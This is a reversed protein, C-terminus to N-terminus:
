DNENPNAKILKFWNDISPSDIPLNKGEVIVIIWAFEGADPREIEFEQSEIFGNANNRPFEGKKFPECTKFRANADRICVIGDIIKIERSPNSPVLRVKFSTHNSKFADVQKMEYVMQDSSEASNALHDTIWQWMNLRASRAASNFDNPDVRPYIRESHRAVKCNLLIEDLPFAIRPPPTLAVIEGQMAVISKQTEGAEKRLSDAEYQITSAKTKLDSIAGIQSWRGIAFGGCLALVALTVALFIAIKRWRNVPKLDLSARLDKPEIIENALYNWPTHVRTIYGFRSLIPNSDILRKAVSYGHDFLVKYEQETFADLDTRVKAAARQLEPSPGVWDGMEREIVDQINIYLVNNNSSDLLRREGWFQMVELVRLLGQSMSTSFDTGMNWDTTKGANSVVIIADEGIRWSNKAAFDQLVVTGLNEFIGGDTLYDAPTGADQTSDFSLKLAPFLAPYASSAAVATAIPLSPIKIARADQGAMTYGDKSFYSYSTHRSLNTAMMFLKPPAVDAHLHKLQKNPWQEEYKQALLDTARGSWMFTYPSIADAIQNRIGKTTFAKLENELEAFHDAGYNSYGHWSLLLHAATISGGSVSSIAEIQSLLQADRFARMVGLHFITARFGGGSLALLIKPVVGGVGATAPLPM